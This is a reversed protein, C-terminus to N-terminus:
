LKTWTGNCTTTSTADTSTYTVNITTGAENITGVVNTVTAGGFNIPGANTFTLGDVPATFTFQSGFGGFNSVLVSIEDAGASGITATYTFPDVIGSCVDNGSWSTTANNAGLFKGRSVTACDAGEYGDACECTCNDGVETLTGNVCTVDECPDSECSSFSFAM